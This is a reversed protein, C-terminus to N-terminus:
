VDREELAWPFLWRRSITFVRDYILGLLGLVVVTFFINDTQLFRQGRIIIYGLGNESAVIEAVLLYSWTLGVGVRCADYIQPLSAPLIVRSVIHAPSTGLTLASDVHMLPVRRVADTVLVLVQFFTGISLLLVKQLDGVGAWIILLPVLAPVPIYRGFDSVPSAIGELDPSSGLLVGIPIAFGIGIVFGGLVRLNTVLLATWFESTSMLQIGAKVVQVPGPLFISREPFYRSMIFSLGGWIALFCAFGFAPGLLRWWQRSALHSNTGLM